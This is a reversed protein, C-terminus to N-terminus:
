KTWLVRSWLPYAKRSNLWGIIPAGRLPRITGITRRVWSAKFRTRMPHVDPKRVQPVRREMTFGAPLRLDERALRAMTNNTLALRMAQIVQRPTQAIMDPWEESQPTTIDEENFAMQDFSMAGLGRNRLTTQLSQFTM